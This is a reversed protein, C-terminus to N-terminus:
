PRETPRGGVKRPNNPAPNNDPVPSDAPVNFEELRTNELGKRHAVIRYDFTAGSTGGGNERVEFTGPTKQSVYLGKSDATPTLFVFYNMNTNVTQAFQPEIVVQARGNTLKASGFDEFWVEPSEMTYLKVMKGNDLPVVANKTAGTGTLSTGTPSVTFVTSGSTPNVMTVKLGPGQATNVLDVTPDLTSSNSAYLGSRSQSTAVVGYGDLSNGWVGTRYPPQSITLTGVAGYVGVAKNTSGTGTNTAVAFIAKGDQSDSYAEIGFANGTTQGLKSAALLGTGDSSASEFYGGYVLGSAGLAKGRVAAHGALNTTSSNTFDGGFNV